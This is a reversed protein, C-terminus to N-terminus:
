SVMGPSMQCPPYERSRAALWTVLSDATRDPLLDVVRHRELDVLVTGYRHGRRFAWDDVGPVRPVAHEEQAAARILDLVADPSIQIALHRLVRAGGEGGLAFGIVELIQTLRV